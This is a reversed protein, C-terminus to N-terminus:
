NKIEISFNNQLKLWKTYLNQSTANLTIKLMRELDNIVNGRQISELAVLQDTHLSVMNSYDILMQAYDEVTNVGSVKSMEDWVTPRHLNKFRHATALAV